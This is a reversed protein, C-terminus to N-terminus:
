GNDVCLTGEGLGPAALDTCHSDVLAVLAATNPNTTGSGTCATAVLASTALMAARVGAGTRRGRRLM